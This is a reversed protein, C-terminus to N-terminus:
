VMEVGLLLRLQEIVRLVRLKARLETGAAHQSALGGVLVVRRHVRAPTLDALLGDLVGARQGALPHLGDVIFRRSGCDVEDLALRLGTLREKHQYLLVRM